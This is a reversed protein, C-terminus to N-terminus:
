SGEDAPARREGESEVRIWGLGAELALELSHGTGDGPREVRDALGTGIHQRDLLSLRGGEVRADVTVRADDPVIVLLGGVGVSAAIAVPHAGPEMDTLDLLLGGGVLRYEPRVEGIAQPRFEDVSVGGELPVTLFASTAALPLVILCFLILRRARGWWSGVVLGFGVALLGAGFYQGPLVRVVAVTDVVALAGVVLFAGALIYWGLPSRERPRRDVRPLPAALGDAAGAAAGAAGAGGPVSQGRPLLLVMGILALALAWFVEAQIYIGGAYRDAVWPSIVVVVALMLVIAGVRGLRRAVLRLAAQTISEDQGAAPILLWGLVYLVLGAGGFIMLGAFGARLLIPDVNLYDGLGGAVGGIVRDSTRRRLRDTGGISQDQPLTADPRETTMPGDDPRGRGRVM